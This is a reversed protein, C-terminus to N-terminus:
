RPQKIRLNFVYSVSVARGQYVVPRYRRAELASVVAEDMHPLGKIVRCNEVEGRSTIVCKAILMGEVRSVVAERPLEINPSSLLEPPVMGGGFSIVDETGDGGGANALMDPLPAGPLGGTEVGDPHSGPIYPLDARAAPVEPTEPPPADNVPEPPTVPPPPVQRPVLQKRPKNRKPVVQNAVPPTPNGRPPAPVTLKLDPMDRWTEEPERIAQNSLLLVAGILGAHALVSIGAGTGLRGSRLWGRQEIVSQFM